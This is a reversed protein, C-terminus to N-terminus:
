LCASRSTCQTTPSPASLQALDSALSQLARAIGPREAPHGIGNVDPVICLCALVKRCEPTVRNPLCSLPPFFDSAGAAARRLGSHM